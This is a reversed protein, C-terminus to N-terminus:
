SSVVKVLRVNSAGGGGGGGNPDNYNFFTQQVADGIFLPEAPAGGTSAFEYITLRQPSGTCTITPQLSGMWTYVFTGQRKTLTDQVNYLFAGTPCTITVSTRGAAGRAVVHVYRSTTLSAATSALAVSPAALAVVASAVVGVCAFLRTRHM